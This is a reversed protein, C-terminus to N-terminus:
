KVCGTLEALICTVRLVDPGHMDLGAAIPRVEVVGRARRPLRAPFNLDRFPQVESVDPVRATIQDAPWSWGGADRRRRNARAPM